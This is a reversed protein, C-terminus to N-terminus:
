YNTTRYFLIHAQQAHLVQHPSAATVQTDNFSYWTSTNPSRCFATYHGHETNGEHCLVGYLQYRDHGSNLHIILYRPLRTLHTQYHCIHEEGCQDCQWELEQLRYHRALVDQLLLPQIDIGLPTKEKVTSKNSMWFKMGDLVQM